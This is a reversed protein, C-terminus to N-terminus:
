WAVHYYTQLSQLGLRRIFIFTQTGDPNCEELNLRRGNKAFRYNSGYVLHSTRFTGKSFTVEFDQDGFLEAYEPLERVSAPVGAPPNGDTLITGNVTNILYHVGTSEDTADFSTTFPTGSPSKNKVFYWTLKPPFQPNVLRCLSTLRSSAHESVLRVHRSMMDNVAWKVKAVEERLEEDNAFLLSNEAFGNCTASNELDFRGLSKILGTLFTGKWRQLCMESNFCRTPECLDLVILDEFIWLQKRTLM